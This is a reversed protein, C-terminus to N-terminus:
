AISGTNANRAVTLTGIFVYSQYPTNFSSSYSEDDFKTIGGFSSVGTDQDRSVSVWVRKTQTTGAVNTFIIPYYYCGRNSEITKVGYFSVMDVPRTIATLYKGSDSQQAWTSERWTILSTDDTIVQNSMTLTYSGHVQGAGKENLLYHVEAPLPIGPSPITMRITGGFVTSKVGAEGLKDSSSYSQVTVRDGKNQVTTDAAATIMSSFDYTGSPVYVVMGDADTGYGATINLTSGSTSKGITESTPVNIQRVNQFNTIAGGYVTILGLLRVQDYTQYANPAATLTEVTKETPTGAVTAVAYVPWTGDAPVNLVGLTYTSTIKNAIRCARNTQAITWGTPLTLNNGSYTIGMGQTHFIYNSTVTKASGLDLVANHKKFRYVRALETASMTITGSTPFFYEVSTNEDGLYFVANEGFDLTVCGEDLRSLSITDREYYRDIVTTGRVNEYVKYTITGSVSNNNAATITLTMTGAEQWGAQTSYVQAGYAYASSIKHGNVYIESIGSGNSFVTM